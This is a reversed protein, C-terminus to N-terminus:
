EVISASVHVHTPPADLWVVVPTKEFPYQGGLGAYRMWLESGLLGADLRGDGATSVARVLYPFEGYHGKCSAGAYLVLTKATLAVFSKSGLTQVAQPLKAAPIHCLSRPALWRVTDPPAGSGSEQTLWPEGPDAALAPLASVALVLLMLLVSIRKM